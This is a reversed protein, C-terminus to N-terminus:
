VHRLAAQVFEDVWAVLATAKKAVAEPLAPSGPGAQAALETLPAM